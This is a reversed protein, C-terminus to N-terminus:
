LGERKLGLQERLEEFTSRPLQKTLIDALQENTPIYKLEIQQNWVCDRIFHYRIDIHKTRKTEPNRSMFICAQNDENLVIPELNKFGLDKMIKTLWLAECTASNAAVYEAEATSLAVVSQKKSSWSIVNGFVRFLYGSTSKRDEKSNAWDADVFGELPVDNQSRSFKLKIDSTGNLYRLLHKLHVYHEETANGQYRSFYNLAFCLDPRSGLVLYMLSGVLERYPQSTTEDDEQKIFEIRTEMPTARSKCDSMGFKNLIKRIYNSQDIYMEGEDQNYQINLGMFHRISGLDKMSFERALEKKIDDIIKDCNSCIMMDDVYLILYVVFNEDRLVYLCYDSKSRKFGLKTVFEHFRDNWCKPSQKLGYLSRKLKLVHDEAVEIGEPPRLYVTENLYGHLFATRVDLHHIALNMKVSVALILRITQLRAVPAYTDVYDIGQKQMYGKAVLRAKFKSPNGLEDEKIKFIWKSGILKVNKPKPVIEWTDNENLSEIEDDIARRWETENVNGKVEAYSMPTDAIWNMANFACYTVFEPGFNRKVKERHGRGLPKEPSKAKPTEFNDESESEFSQENIPSKKQTSGQPTKMKVIPTRVVPTRVVPTKVVPTRPPPRNQEPTTVEEDESDSDECIKINIPTEDFVVNRETVIKREEADFLRYGGINYGVMVFEKSKADSKKRKNRSIHAFARCGFVKVNSVNPREGFWMEYPTKDKLASTPSRNTLYAATLIAEGWLEKSAESEVMMCRAKEILTRNLREAVGNSEPNYPSTYEIMIGNEKCFEKLKQSIYEGGNDCRLRSMKNEFHSTAMAHYVKFKEFVESKSKMLYVASCHTYDDLFSVYYRSGDYTEQDFPGFVDTHVRELPRRSTPRSNSFPQRCQKGKVCTECFHIKDSINQDMGIVLNKKLKCVNPMSLHAFRRHWLENKSLDSSALSAQLIRPKLTIWYLGGQKNGKIVTRGNMKIIVENNGYIVQGGCEDIRNVALLNYRLDPVYCVQQMVLAKERGNITSYVPMSGGKTAQSFQGEKALQINMPDQLEVVNHLWKDNNVYHNNAGSDVCMTIENESKEDLIGDFCSVMATEFGKKNSSKTKKPTATNFQKKKTCVNQKHGYENCNFCRPGKNQQKQRYKNSTNFAVAENPDEKGNDQSSMRKSKRKLEEELLRTKVREMTLDEKAFSELASVVNDYTEPLGMMLNVVIDENKVEEGAGKLESVISEFELFYDELSQGENCRLANLKRKLFICKAISKTAFTTKLNQIMAYATTKDRIFHLHSDAVCRIIISKAARDNTKWAAEELNAETPERNTHEKVGKEDLLADVRYLWDSFDKGKFQKIGYKDADCAM